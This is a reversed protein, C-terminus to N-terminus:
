LTNKREKKKNVKKHRSIGWSKKVPLSNKRRRGLQSHMVSKMKLTAAQNDPNRSVESSNYNTNIKGSQKLPDGYPDRSTQKVPNEQSTKKVRKFSNSHELNVKPNGRAVEHQKDPLEEEMVPYPISEESSTGDTKYQQGTAM